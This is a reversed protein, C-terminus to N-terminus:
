SNVKFGSSNRACYVRKIKILVVIVMVIQDLKLTRQSNRQKRADDKQGKTEKWIQATRIVPHESLFLSHLENPPPGDGGSFKIGFM